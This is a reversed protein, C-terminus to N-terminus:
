QGDEGDEAALDPARRPRAPFQLDELKWAAYEEAMIKGFRQASTATTGRLRPLIRRVLEAPITNSPDTLSICFEDPKTVDALLDDLDKM